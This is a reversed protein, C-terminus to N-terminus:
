TQMWALLRITHVNKAGNRLTVVVSWDRNRDHPDLKGDWLRWASEFNRSNRLYSACGAYQRNGTTLYRQHVYEQLADLQGEGQVTGVRRPSAYYARGGVEQMIAYTHM